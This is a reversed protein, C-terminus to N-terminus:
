TNENNKGHICELLQLTEALHAVGGIVLGGHHGGCEGAELLLLLLMSLESVGGRGHALPVVRRGLLLRVLELLVGVHRLVRVVRSVRLIVRLLRLPIGLRGVRRALRRLVGVVRVLLLGLGEPVLLLVLCTVRVLHPSALAAIIDRLGLVLIASAPAVRETLALDGRENGGVHRPDGELSLFLLAFVLSM